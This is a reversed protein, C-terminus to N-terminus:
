ELERQKGIVLVAWDITVLDVVLVGANIMLGPAFVAVVDGRRDQGGDGQHKAAHGEQRDAGHPAGRPCIGSRFTSCM